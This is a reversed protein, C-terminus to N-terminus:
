SSAAAAPPPAPKATKLALHHDLVAVIRDLLSVFGSFDITAAQPIVVRKAFIVKGYKGAEEHEKNPDFTKGDVVTKLLAPPFLDEICSKKSSGLEPTKVMYLNYGLYYFPETSDLGIKPYRKNKAYGFLSKAGDDNDFLVIVPWALPAHGYARLHKEYDKILFLLDGTGHGLQMVDHVITSFNM